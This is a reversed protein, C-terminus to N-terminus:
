TYVNKCFTNNDVVRQGLFAGMNHSGFLNKRGKWHVLHVVVTVVPGSM